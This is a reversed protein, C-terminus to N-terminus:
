IKYLVAYIKECFEDPVRFASLLMRYKLARNVM